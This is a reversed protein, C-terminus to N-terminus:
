KEEKFVAAKLASLAKLSEPLPLPMDWAPEPAWRPRGRKVTLHLENAEAAWSDDLSPCPLTARHGSNM